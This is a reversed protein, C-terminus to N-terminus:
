SQYLGLKDDTSNKEKGHVHIICVFFTLIYYLNLM